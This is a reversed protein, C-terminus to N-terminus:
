KYSGVYVYVDHDTDRKEIILRGVDLRTGTEENYLQRAAEDLVREIDDADPIIISGNTLTWTFANDLFLEALKEELTM